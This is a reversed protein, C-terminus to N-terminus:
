GYTKSPHCPQATLRAEEGLLCPLHGPVVAPDQLRHPSPETRSFLPRRCTAAPCFHSRQQLGTRRRDEGIDVGIALRCSGIGLCSEDGIGGDAELNTPPLCHSDYSTRNTVGFRVYGHNWFSKKNCFDMLSRLFRKTNNPVKGVNGASRPSVPLGCTLRKSNGQGTVRM